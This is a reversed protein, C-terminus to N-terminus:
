RNDGQLTLLQQHLQDDLDVIRNERAALYHQTFVDLWSNLATAALKEDALELCLAAVEATCLHAENNSRRLQYRSFQAPTLSLVPLENLYPSKRFMKRAETWTGDLLIFLPRKSTTAILQQKVRAPQAYEGPFVVYPQWSGDNLLEKVPQMDGVRSWSFAYTDAVIDAILWGTNSPKFPESDYMLLCMGATTTITPQWACICYREDLRCRDCRKIQHGRALYPRSSNAKRIARLEAVAHPYQNATTM